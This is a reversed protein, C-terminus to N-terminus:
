TSQNLFDSGLSRMDAVVNIVMAAQMLMDDLVNEMNPNMDSGLDISGIVSRHSRISAM